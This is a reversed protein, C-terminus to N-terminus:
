PAPSHRSGPLELSAGAAGLPARCWPWAPTSAGCQFHGTELPSCMVLSSSLTILSSRHTYRPTSAHPPLRRSSRRSDERPRSRDASAPSDLPQRYLESRARTPPSYAWRLAAVRIGWASFRGAGGPGCSRRGAPCRGAGRRFAEPTRRGSRYGRRLVSDSSPSRSSTKSGRGSPSGPSKARTM